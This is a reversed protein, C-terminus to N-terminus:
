VIRKTPLTLHTYSVPHDLGIAHGIEHIIVTYIPNGPSWDTTRSQAKDYTITVFVDGHYIDGDHDDTEPMYTWSTLFNSQNAVFVISAQSPDSVEVFRLGSNEEFQPLGDRVAARQSKDMAHYSNSYLNSVPRNETQSPEEGADVFAYTVVTATGVKEDINWRWRGTTLASFDTVYAM